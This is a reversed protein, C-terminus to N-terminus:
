DVSKTEAEISFSMKKEVLSVLNGKQCVMSYNKKDIATYQAPFLEIV